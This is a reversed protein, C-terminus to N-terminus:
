KREKEHLTERAQFNCSCKRCKCWRVRTVGQVGVSYVHIAKKSKGQQIVRDVETAGCSTCTAPARKVLVTTDPHDHAMLRAELDERRGGVTLDRARLAIKLAEVNMAQMSEATVKVLDTEM